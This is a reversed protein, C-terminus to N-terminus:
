RKLAEPQTASQGAVLRLQREPQGLLPDGPQPWTNRGQGRLSIRYALESPDAYLRCV